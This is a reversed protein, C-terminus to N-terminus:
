KAFKFQIKKVLLIGLHSDEEVILARATKM